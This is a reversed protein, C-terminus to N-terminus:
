AGTINEALERQEAALMVLRQQITELEVMLDARTLHKANKAKFGKVAADVDALLVELSKGVRGLIHEEAEQAGRQWGSEWAKPWEQAAETFGESKGRGRGARFEGRMMADIHGSHLGVGEATDEDMTGGHMVRGRRLTGSPRATDAFMDPGPSMAETAGGEYPNRSQREVGM